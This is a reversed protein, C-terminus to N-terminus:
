PRREPNILCFFSVASKLCLKRYLKAKVGVVRREPFLREPPLDPRSRKNTKESERSHSEGVRDAKVTASSSLFVLSHFTPTRQLWPAESLTM